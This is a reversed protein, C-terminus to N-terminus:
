FIFQFYPKPKIILQEIESKLSNKESVRVFADMVLSATKAHTARFRDMNTGASVTEIV